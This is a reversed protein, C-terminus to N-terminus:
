EALVREIIRNITEKRAVLDMGFEGELQKRLGKKTLQDLNAGHCIRRISSELQDDTVGAQGINMPSAFTQVEPLYETAPRSQPPPIQGPLSSLSYSSGLPHFEGLGGPRPQNISYSSVRQDAQPRGMPQTYSYSSMRSGPQLLQSQGYFSEHVSRNDGGYMSGGYFSRSEPLAAFSGVPSGGILSGAYPLQPPDYTSRARMDQYSAAPSIGRSMTQKEYTEYAGYTTSPRSDFGRKENLHFDGASHNSEQDWLENEYENWSKLPISKPDFKGEDHIVIKKGKEGVVLRTSGWSFDDMRWFSYLPLFFSFVPIALIYFIMWAIMDWRMRFVFVLAQLGYIASLMIISLVPITAHDHIVLYLLYGIYAVTVPAVITSVLDIFVIFRMSFCCFGCLQDLFVLEALNHVTSNIWRRRQSLLVKASDPAVTQAHADRVFKTKYTPFHKLVLTTLYRDEGLHLLNKLHLTDVRNESYDHIIANSIFLPKHTDPTRLRYMSFCGPLCTISGFLSEFSKALHHSIFYEYVQAMTVVSQKANAISTEGCVGITKKDHMMASVLRNLSLEQVTTDADVMFLYEYFSPNVGIVNKIQHYMELELPNMPANFHIKNLFHMVIMQSDRKGRNGPKPRETPKGVKVIVLYPVVHGACEYLGAYVKGMNHQKSGEGLSQFSLPEPDAHPDVGLIDLVIAPTPKENGYGKINGDCVIMILKRKDDYKLRVLSDITKRLSEEGETYCPVQCIVFKDHNEPARSSGFHLAALFKFGIIAVMVSSLALLIYTSFQCQPSDRTDVKGILFLNRLCQTQWAVVNAGLSSNLDNILDTVDKGSNYTFIQVLQNSMFQRDAQDQATFQYGRPGLLGGGNQQIYTTLEYVMDNYIAVARGASAMNRIDKKTYGMFGTRFRSRLMIMSEEYWDPRSDNTYARFDHYQRYPDTTNTSDLTVYQSISGTTGSCLASVQVPFLETADLGGYQMVLKTPVVSVATLHTPAFQSLDFVEGRIAVYANNPSDKYNHSQLESTSYVHQTPCILVGLVAIVFITCGCIFWIIMNIALKERWAQRVDQRKMKGISSLLFGPIWFTLIRCLWVWRRRAASERYEEQVEGDDPGADLPDKEGRSDLDRFM